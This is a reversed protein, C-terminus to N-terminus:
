PELGGVPQTVPGLLDEGSTLTTSWRPDLGPSSIRLPPGPMGPVPVQWLLAPRPGHWRLAFSVLGPSTPADHVELNQGFWASPLARCLELGSPLDGILANRVLLCLEASVHGDENDPWTWTASARDVLGALRALSEAPSVARLDVVPRAAAQAESAERSFGFLQQATAITSPVPNSGRGALLLFCRSAAVADALRGPPLELRMGRSMQVQWSRSVDDAAPLRSVAGELSDSHRARGGGRGGMGRLTRFWRRLGVGQDRRRQREPESPTVQGGGLPLAGRMVARHALPYLFAAQAKGASCRLRPPFEPIAQGNRVIAMADTGGHAPACLRPRGPLLVALDGGVVVTSGSLDIRKVAATEPRVTLAVAVPVPSCNSIEFVALDTGHYRVAYARHVVDGGPVRMVTEVVPTNGLLRQRVAQDGPLRWRDDAGVSWDLAWAVDPPAMRGSEDVTARHPSGLNGIVTRAM